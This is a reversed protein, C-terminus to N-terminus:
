VYPTQTWTKSMVAAIRDLHHFRHPEIARLLHTVIGNQTVSLVNFAPNAAAQNSDACSELPRRMRRCCAGYHLPLNRSTSSWYSKLLIADGVFSHEGPVPLVKPTVDVPIDRALNRRQLAGSQNGTPLPPHPHSEPGQFWTPLSVLVTTSKDM